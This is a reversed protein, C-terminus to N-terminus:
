KTAVGPATTTIPRRPVWLFSLSSGSCFGPEWPLPEIATRMQRAGQSCVPSCQESQPEEARRFAKRALGARLLQRTPDRNRSGLAGGCM